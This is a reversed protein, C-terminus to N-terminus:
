QVLERDRLVGALREAMKRYGAENPHIADSMLEDHNRLGRLIEPVYVAGYERCIAEYKEGRGPNLPGTVGTFVVVAGSAQLTTILTRLDREIDPWDRNQLIDNGGLTLIIIGFKEDKFQALKGVGDETTDGSTGRNVVERGLIRALAAPYSQTAPDNVGYGAVLSDGFCAIRVNQPPVNTIPWNSGGCGALRAVGYVLGLVILGLAVRTYWRMPSPEPARRVERRTYLANPSM